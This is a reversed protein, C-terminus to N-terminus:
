PAGSLAVEQPRRVAASERGTHSDGDMQPFLGPGLNVARAQAPRNVCSWSMCGLM